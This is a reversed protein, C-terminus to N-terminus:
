KKNTSIRKMKMKTEGERNLVPKVEEKGASIRKMLSLGEKSERARLWGRSKGKAERNAEAVTKSSTRESAKPARIELAGAAETGEVTLPDM